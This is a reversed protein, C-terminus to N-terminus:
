YEITTQNNVHNECVFFTEEIKYIRIGASSDGWFTALMIVMAM